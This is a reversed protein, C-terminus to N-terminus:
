FLSIHSDFHGTYCIHATATSADTTTTATTITAMSAAAGTSTAAVMYATAAYDVKSNYVIMM